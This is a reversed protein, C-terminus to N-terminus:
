LPNEKNLCAKQCHAALLCKLCQHTHLETLVSTTFPINLKTFAVCQKQEKKFFILNPQTQIEKSKCRQKISELKYPFVFKFFKIAYTIWHSQFNNFFTVIEGLLTWTKPWCHGITIDSVRSSSFYPILCQQNTPNHANKKFNLLWQSCEHLSCFCHRQLKTCIYM